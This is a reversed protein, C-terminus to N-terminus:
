YKPKVSSRVLDRTLQDNHQGTLFGDVLSQYDKEEDVHDYTAIAYRLADALHDDGSSDVDEPNLNDHVLEPISRILEKCNSFIKLKTRGDFEKMKDRLMNWGPIRANNGKVLTCGTETMETFGSKPNDKKSWLSPDAYFTLNDKMRLENALDVYTLGKKYLEDYVYITDFAKDYACWVAASPATYGYDLGGFRPFHAPLDFPQCVHVERRFGSFYQGAFIDWDGDKYARKLTLPLADLQKEYSKEIYKNDTYLSKIFKFEKPDFSEDRFDQSIWLKKVWGHGIEGPNTAALFKTDPIGPWRLRMALFDFTERKNKTLEDVLEAAFESSLYKSPDDLNRFALVGGGFEDKLRFEHESKNLDGLWAPFEYPIKSLHRERLAPYDECFLGVRVGKIDYKAYYYMLLYLGMWRLWYSKGGSAAGGYLIYKFEKVAEKAEIQKPQFGALTSFKIAETM